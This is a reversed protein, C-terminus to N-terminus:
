DSTFMLLAMHRARKICAALPRQHAACTGSTRRPVMKGRETTFKRLKSVNKWDISTAKEVCFTCVKRRPKRYKSPARKRVPPPM